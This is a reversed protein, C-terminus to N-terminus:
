RFWWVSIGPYRRYRVLRRTSRLAGIERDLLHRFPPRNASSTVLFVARAQRRTPLQTSLPSANLRPGYRALVVRLEPPVYFVAARQGAHHQV